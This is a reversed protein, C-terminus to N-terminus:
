ATAHEYPYGKCDDIIEVDAEDELDDAEDELDDAEDELDDAEDDDDDDDDDDRYSAELVGNMETIAGDEDDGLAEAIVKCEQLRQRMTPGVDAKIQANTKNKCCPCALIAMGELKFDGPEAEHKVHYAEWPEGCRTCPIDM